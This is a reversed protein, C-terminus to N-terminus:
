KFPKERTHVEAHVKLNSSQSFLALCEECKFPEEGSPVRSDTKLNSSQSFSGM